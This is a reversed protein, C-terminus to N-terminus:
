QVKFYDLKKEFYGFLLTLGGCFILFFFATSFLPWILGKTAFEKAMMIIEKNAIINALATDKVLTMFENGTPPLIRKILQVLTVKFFIQTKTMGLVVGAENQGKPISEIGGRYIESFYCSYNIIFAVYAATMRGNPLFSWPNEFGMLGPGYFIVVLQLMLPTGRIIWIFTRTIWRIPKFERVPEPLPLRRLPKWKNISGFTIFLGIPLAFILTVVFVQCNLIFSKGLMQFIVDTSM